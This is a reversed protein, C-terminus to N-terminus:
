LGNVMQSLSFVRSTPPCIIAVVTWHLAWHFYINLFYYYYLLKRLNGALGCCLINWMDICLTDWQTREGALFFEACIVDCDIEAWPNELHAWCRAWAAGESALAPVMASMSLSTASGLFTVHFAQLIDNLVWCYDGKSNLWSKEM